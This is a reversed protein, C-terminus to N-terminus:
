KMAVEIEIKGVLLHHIPCKNAIELLRQKQEASLDGVFDITLSLVVREKTESTIEVKVHTSVLPWQKRLAYLQCTLVTCAALAAEILEHPTPGEDKGGMEGSLGAVIEHRRMKLTTALENKLQGQVM